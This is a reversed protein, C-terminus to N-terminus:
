FAQTTKLERTEVLMRNIVNGAELGETLAQQSSIFVSHEITDKAEAGSM